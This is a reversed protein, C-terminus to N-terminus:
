RVDLAKVFKLNNEPIRNIRRLRYINNPCKNLNLVYTYTPIKKIDTWREM